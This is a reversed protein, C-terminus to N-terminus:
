CNEIYRFEEVFEIKRDHDFAYLYKPYKVCQKDISLKKM